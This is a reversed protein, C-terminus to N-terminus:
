STLLINFIPAPPSFCLPLDYQTSPYM